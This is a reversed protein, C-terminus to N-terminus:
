TKGMIESFVLAPDTNAKIDTCVARFILLNKTGLGRTLDQHFHAWYSELFTDYSVFAKRRRQMYDNSMTGISALTDNSVMDDTLPQTDKSSTSVALSLEAELLRCLKCSTLQIRRSESM